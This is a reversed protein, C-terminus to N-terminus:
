QTLRFRQIGSEAIPTQGAGFATVQWLMTKMPAIRARVDAPLAVSTETSDTSWVETRDVEMVRAHYRVAGDIARWELRDPPTQQDGIPGRVPITLSRTVASDSGVDTPLRPAQSSLLYYGSVAALLAATVSLAARWAGFRRWWRGSPQEHHVRPLPSPRAQLQAVAGAVAAREDAAVPADVMGRMLALEAQCNLCSEIHATAAARQEAPLADDAYQGLEDISLCEPGPQLARTLIERDM